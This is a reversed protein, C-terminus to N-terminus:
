WELGGGATWGTRVGSSSGAFCTTTSPLPPGANCVFGFPPILSGFTIAAGPAATLAWDASESVRGYAFGGTGFLLLNPTALWGVRGRVTGFWDTQQEVTESQTVFGTFVANAINRGSMGSASFDAELGLVWNSWQWNYGAEIGGVAGSQLARPAGLLPPFGAFPTGAIVGLAPPGQGLNNNGAEDGLGGGFQIGGYFGTWTPVPAPAVPPAKMPMDAAFAPIGIILAA